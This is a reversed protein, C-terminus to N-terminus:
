TVRAAHTDFATGAALCSVAIELIGEDNTSISRVLAVVTKVKRGSMADFRASNSMCYWADFVFELRIGHGRYYARRRQSKGEEFRQEDKFYFPLQVAIYDGPAILSRLEPRSNIHETIDIIPLQEILQDIISSIFHAVIYGDGFDLFWYSPKGGIQWSKEDSLLGLQNLVGLSTLHAIVRSDKCRINKALALEFVRRLNIWDWRAYDNETKLQLIAKADLKLIDAEWRKQSAALESPSLGQSLQKQTHALDHHELCLVALNSEAHSRSTAWEEIHHLIIPRGPIRCVCCTRRNRHLVRLLTEEPIPPRPENLLDDVLATPISLAKLQSPSMQKLSTLTHGKASLTEALSSDFGRALLAKITLKNM